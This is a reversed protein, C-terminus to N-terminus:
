ILMLLLCKVKLFYGSANSASTHRPVMSPRLALQLVNIGVAFQWFAHCISEIVKKLM